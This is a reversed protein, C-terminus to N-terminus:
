KRIDTSLAPRTVRPEQVPGDPTPEHPEPGICNLMSAFPFTVAEPEPESADSFPRMVERFSRMKAVPEMGIVPVGAPYESWTNRM